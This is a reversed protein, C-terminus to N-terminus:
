PNQRPPKEKRSISFETKIAERKRKKPHNLDNLKNDKGEIRM